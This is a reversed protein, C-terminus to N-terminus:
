MAADADRLLESAGRHDSGDSMAIGISATAVVETGEVALPSSFTTALREAINVVADVHAVDPCVVVFEDGGFRGVTDGPRVSEVLRQAVAKLVDDGAAHGLADNVVKFRDVDCILVAVETGAARGALARDLAPLVLDRNPLGTLTDHLAM